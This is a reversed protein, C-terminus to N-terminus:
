SIKVSYQNDSALNVGLLNDYHPTQDPVYRGFKVIINDYQKLTEIQEKIEDPNYGTYIVITDECDYWGRVASVFSMLEHFDDFPELGGCVISKTIPNNLYKKMIVDISIDKEPLTGLSSNQCVKKGCEKECKFSCHPFAIFMSPEKYNVFDEYRIDKVFM